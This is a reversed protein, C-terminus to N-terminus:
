VTARIVCMSLSKIRATGFGVTTQSGIGLVTDYHTFAAVRRRDHTNRGAAGPRREDLLDAFNNWLVVRYVSRRRLEQGTVAGQSATVANGLLTKRSAVVIIRDVTTTTGASNGWRAHLRGTSTAITPVVYLPHRM